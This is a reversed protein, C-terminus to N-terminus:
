YKNENKIHKIRIPPTGIIQTRITIQTIIIIHKRLIQTRIIQKIHILQTRIIKHKKILIHKIIIQTTNNTHIKNKHKRM